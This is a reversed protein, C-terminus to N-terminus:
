GKMKQLFAAFEDQISKDPEKTALSVVWIALASLIFAPLLEYVALAGGLPAILNKWVVVMIGGTLMGAAAGPLTTRKWFLSFLILPGFSAGLGAWAYSVIRFISDSGTLAIALGFITVLVITGRACWLVAKESMSPIFKGKLIDNSLSSSTILMYSDCSSMSAGLIGSLVLGALLPPFFTTAMHLFVKESDGSTLAWTPYLARALMGLAVAAFLSIFCWVVGIVKAQKLKDAKKIAMFRLLVQPMGFYGLGWAMCSVINLFGYDKGPGFL